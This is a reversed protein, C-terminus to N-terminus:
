PQLATQLAGSAGVCRRCRRPAPHFDAASNHHLVVASRTTVNISNDSCDLHQLALACPCFVYRILGTAPASLLRFYPAKVPFCTQSTSTCCLIFGNQNFTEDERRQQLRTHLVLTTQVTQLTVQRRNGPRLKYWVECSNPIFTRPSPAAIAFTTLVWLKQLM